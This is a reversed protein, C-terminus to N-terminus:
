GRSPRLAHRSEARTFRFHVASQAGVSQAASEREGADRREADPDDPTTAAAAAANIPSAEDAARRRGREESAGEDAAFRRFRPFPPARIKTAVAIRHKAIAAFSSDIPRSRSRVSVRYVPSEDSATCTASKM